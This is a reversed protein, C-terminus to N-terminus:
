RGRRGPYLYDNFGGSFTRPRWDPCANAESGVVKIVGGAALFAETDRALKERIGQNGLRAQEMHFARAPFTDDGIM